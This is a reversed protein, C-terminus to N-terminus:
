RRSNRFLSWILLIILIPTAYRFLLAFIGGIISLVSIMVLIVVAFILFKWYWKNLNFYHFGTRQKEQRDYGTDYERGFGQSGYGSYSSEQSEYEGAGSTDIITKAILRPSGIEEIVESESRGKAVEQSIYNDYYRLNDSVAGAPIEGKLSAELEKLFEAKRM